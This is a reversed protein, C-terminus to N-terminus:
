IEKLFRSPEFRETKKYEKASNVGFLYLEHKARTMAVYFLRREEEVIGSQISANSPIIGECLDPLIVRKFELGKAAHMTMIGVASASNKQEIKEDQLASEWKEIEPHKRALDILYPLVDEKSEGNSVKLGIVNTIYMIRGFSDLEKLSNIQQKFKTIESLIYTQNRFLYELKRFSLEEKPIDYSCIGRYPKNMIRLFDEYSFYNECLHFYALIDKVFSNASLEECKGFFTFPIHKEKLMRVFITHMRNNRMLIVTNKREKDSLDGILEAIYRYEEALSTFVKKVFTGEESSKSVIDKHIREKNHSILRGSADTISKDCRYNNWLPYKILDPFDTSLRRMYSPDSGRFSYICQDDDGVAFLNAHTDCLYMLIEYQVSDIDQFEDVFVYQFREQLRKLIDPNMCLMDRTQLLLDEFDLLGANETEEKYLPYIRDFYLLNDDNPREKGCKVLSIHRILLNLYEETEPVSLHLRRIIRKLISYKEYDSIVKPISHRYSKLFQYFVSHFTGFLVKTSSNRSSKLYRDKMEIAAAKSFTLVLIKEPPIGSSILFHVRNTLVTTKGSGPGAVVLAPGNLHHIASIQNKDSNM